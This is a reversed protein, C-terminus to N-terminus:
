EQGLKETKRGMKKTGKTPSAVFFFCVGVCSEFNLFFFEAKVAWLFREDRCPRPMKRSRKRQWLRVSRPLNGGMFTQIFPSFDRPLCLHFVECGQFFLTSYGVFLLWFFIYVVFLSILTSDISWQVVFITSRSLTMLIMLGLSVWGRLWWGMSNKEANKRRWSGCERPMIRIYVILFRLNFPLRSDWTDCTLGLPYFQTM